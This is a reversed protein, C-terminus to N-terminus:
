LVCGRSCRHGLLVLVLWVTWSGACSRHRREDSKGCVFGLWDCILGRRPSDNWLSEQDLESTQTRDGNILRLSSSCGRFLWSTATVSAATDAQPGLVSRGVHRPVNGERPWSKSNYINLSNFFTHIDVCKLCKLDWVSLNFCSFFVTMVEHAATKGICNFHTDCCCPNGKCSVQMKESVRYLM